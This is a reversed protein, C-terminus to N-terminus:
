INTRLLLGPSPLLLDLNENYLQQWSVNAQASFKPGHDETEKHTFYGQNLLKRVGM